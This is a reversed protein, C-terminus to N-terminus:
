QNIRVRPDVIGYSLDCILNGLLSIIMYFMQMALVVEYDQSVLSAYMLKGMGNLGFMQEIVLSGGFISLFWGIIM